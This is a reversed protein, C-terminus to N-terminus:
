QVVIEVRRNLARGADGTNSAVPALSAVGKAALRAAEIGHSTRLANVVSAARAQSLTINADLSGVNDTHGVVYVKLSPNTKLLTAIEALAADSDSTLTAKATDFYIGPVAVHGQADLSQKLADAQLVKVQDDQLAASEVIQQYVLTRKNALDEVVHLFVHVEGAEHRRHALLARRPSDSFYADGFGKPRILGSLSIFAMMDEGCDERSNCAFLTEFGGQSLAKEYNRMVELASHDNRIRYDIRTVKGEVELLDGPAQQDDIKTQPFMAADYDKALYARIEAGPFRTLLPHDASGKIDAAGVASALALGAALVFGRIWSSTM